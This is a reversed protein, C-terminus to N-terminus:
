GVEQSHSSRRFPMSGAKPLEWGQGQCDPCLDIDSGLAWGDAKLGGPSKSETRRCVACTRGHAQFVRKQRVQPPAEQVESTPISAEPSISPPAEQGPDESQTAAHLLREIARLRERERSREAQQQALAQRTETANRETEARASELEALQKELAQRAATEREEVAKLQQELEVRQARERGAEARAKQQSAKAAELERETDERKVREREAAAHAESAKKDAEAIKRASRAKIQGRAEQAEEKAKRLEVTLRGTENRERGLARETEVRKASEIQTEALVKELVGLRRAADEKQAIARQERLEQLLKEASRETDILARLRQELNTENSDINM